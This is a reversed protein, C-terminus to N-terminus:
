PFWLWVAMTVTGVDMLPQATYCLVFTTRNVSLPVIVLSIGLFGGIVWYWDLNVFGWVFLSILALFALGGMVARFIGPSMLSSGRTAVRTTYGSILGLCLAAFFLYQEM